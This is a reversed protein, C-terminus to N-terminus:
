WAPAFPRKAARRPHSLANSVDTSRHQLRFRVAGDYFLFNSGQFHLGLLQWRHENEPDLAPATATSTAAPPYSLDMPNLNTIDNTGLSSM